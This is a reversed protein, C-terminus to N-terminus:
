ANTGNVETIIGSIYEEYQVERSIAVCMYPTYLRYLINEYV